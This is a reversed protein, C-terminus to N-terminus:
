ADYAELFGYVVLGNLINSKLESPYSIFKQKFHLQIKRNLKKEYKNIDIKSESSEVFLDIDSSTTDEGKQFSGFLVIANPQCVDTIEKIIGSNYLSEVNYIKKYHKFQESRRNACYYPNKKNGLEAFDKKIIDLKILTQLHNKVSTHALKIKRSIIMLEFKKEPNDFFVCAVKWLSCKQLM